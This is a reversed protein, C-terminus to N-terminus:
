FFCLTLLMFSSIVAKFLLHYLNNIYVIFFYNFPGLISGQPVGFQISQPDSFVGNVNVSQTRNTLYAKFWFVASDLFGLSYLKELMTDHDLTDFAKSLDLFVMGTLLGRDM